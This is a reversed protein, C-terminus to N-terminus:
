RSLKESGMVAAGPMVWQGDLVKGSVKYLALGAGEGWAVYLQKDAEIGVGHVVHGDDWKVVLAYVTGKVKTITFETSTSNTGADSGQQYTGDWRKANGDMSSISALGGKAEDGWFDGCVSGKSGNIECHAIVGVGQADGGFAVAFRKGLQRGVGTAHTAGDAGTAWDVAYDDGQKAVTVSGVYPRKDPMKAATIKYTGALSPADKATATGTLLALAMTIGISRTLTDM